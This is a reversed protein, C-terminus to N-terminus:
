WGIWLEQSNRQRHVRVSRRFRYGFVCLGEGIASFADKIADDCGGANWIRLIRRQGRWQWGQRLDPDGEDGSDHCRLVSRLDLPTDVAESEAQSGQDFRNARDLCSRLSPLSGGRPLKMQIYSAEARSEHSLILLRSGCRSGSPLVALEHKGIPTAAFKAATRDTTRLLSSGSAKVGSLYPNTM